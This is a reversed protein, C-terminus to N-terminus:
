MEICKTDSHTKKWTIDVM